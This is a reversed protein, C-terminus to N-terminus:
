LNPASHSALQASTLSRPTNASLLQVHALLTGLHCLLSIADQSTYSITCGTPGPVRQVQCQSQMELVTNMESGRVVLIVDLLTDLSHCCFQHPTQLVPTILLLQSLQSQENQLLPPEPSVKNSEVVVQFFNITLRLNVEEGLYSAM